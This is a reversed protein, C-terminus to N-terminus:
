NRIFTADFIAATTPVFWSEIIIYFTPGMEDFPDVFVPINLIQLYKKAFIM